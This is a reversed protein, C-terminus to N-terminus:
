RNHGARSLLLLWQGPLAGRIHTGPRALSQLTGVQWPPVRRCSEPGQRACAMCPTCKCSRLPRLRSLSGSRLVATAAPPSVGAFTDAAASQLEGSSAAARLRGAQCHFAEVLRPPQQGAPITLVAPLKKEEEKTPSAGRPAAATVAPHMAHYPAWAPPVMVRSVTVTAPPLFLRRTIQIHTTHVPAQHVQAASCLTGICGEAPCLNLPKPTQPGSKKPGRLARTTLLSMRMRSNCSDRVKTKAQLTQRGKLCAPAAAKGAVKNHSMTACHKAGLRAACLLTTRHVNSEKGKCKGAAASCLAAGCPRAAPPLVGAEAASGPQIEGHPLSASGTSQTCSAAGQTVTRYVAPNSKALSAASAKSSTGAQTPRATRGGKVANAHPEGGAKCMARHM